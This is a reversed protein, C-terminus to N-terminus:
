IVLNEEPVIHLNAQLQPLSPPPLPSSLQTM